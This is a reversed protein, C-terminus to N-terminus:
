PAEQNCLPCHKQPFREHRGEAHDGRLREAREFRRNRIETCRRGMGPRHAYCVYGHINSLRLMQGCHKCWRIKPQQKNM